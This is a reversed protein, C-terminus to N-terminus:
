ETQSLEPNTKVSIKNDYKKSVDGSVNRRKNRGKNVTISKKNGVM